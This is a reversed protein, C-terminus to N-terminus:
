GTLLLLFCVLIDTINTIIKNYVLKRVELMVPIAQMQIPTPVVYGSDKMNKLLNVPVQYNTRLEDFESILKPVRSGTVSIRNANRMQNIQFALLM